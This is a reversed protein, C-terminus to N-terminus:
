LTHRRRRRRRWYRGNINRVGTDNLPTWKKQRPSPSAKSQQLQGEEAAIDRNSITSATSAEPMYAQPVNTTRQGYRPLCGKLNKADQKDETSQEETGPTTEGNDTIRTYADHFSIDGDGGIEM